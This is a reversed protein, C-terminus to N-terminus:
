CGTLGKLIGSVALATHVSRLPNASTERIDSEVLSEALGFGVSVPLVCTGLSSGALVM